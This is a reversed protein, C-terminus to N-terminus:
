KFWKRQGHLRSYYNRQEKRGKWSHIKWDDPRFLHDLDADEHALDLDLMDDPHTWVGFHLECLQTDFPFYTVDVKCSSELNAPPTWEVLGDSYIMAKVHYETNFDDSISNFLEM